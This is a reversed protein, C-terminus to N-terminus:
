TEAVFFTCRTMSEDYCPPCGAQKLIKFLPFEGNLLIDNTRRQTYSEILRFEDNGKECNSINNKIQSFPIFAGNGCNFM